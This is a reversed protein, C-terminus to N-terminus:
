MKVFGCNGCLTYSSIFHGPIIEKDFFECRGFKPNNDTNYPQVEARARSTGLGLGDTPFRPDLTVKIIEVGTGKIVENYKMHWNSRRQADQESVAWIGPRTVALDHQFVPKNGLPYPDRTHHRERGHGPKSKHKQQPDHTTPRPHSQTCRSTTSYIVPFRIFVLFRIFNVLLCLLSFVLGIRASEKSM